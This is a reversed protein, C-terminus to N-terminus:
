RGWTLLIEFRLARNPDQEEVEHHTLVVTSLSPERKLRAVYAIMTRADRAQATLRASHKGADPELALLGVQPSQAQGVAERLAGWPLNLRTVIANLAALRAPAIAPGPPRAPIRAVVPAQRAARGALAQRGREVGGWALVASACLALGAALGLAALPGTAALARAPSRPAFDIRVARRNGRAPAPRLRPAADGADLWVAPASGCLPLDDPRARGLRAAERAVHTALWGHDADAPVPALRVAELRAGTGTGLTLVGDHCLALWTAQAGPAGGQRNWAAVFRSGVSVVPMGAAAAADLLGDLLAQPLAAAMFPRDADRDVALRWSAPPEGYLARFRVIAAADLDAPRVVAAPPVVQWLRTSEDDVLLALRRGKLGHQEVLAALAAAPAGQARALERTESGAALLAAGGHDICIRVPRRWRRM